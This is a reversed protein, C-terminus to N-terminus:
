AGGGNARALPVTGAGPGGEERWAARSISMPLLTWIQDGVRQRAPPADDLAFGVRRYCDIAPRNFDYVGLDVRHLGLEDFAVRLAARVLAQGLGRGRLEPPGVLVRGLRARGTRRHIRGLEVHGVIRGEPALAARYIRPEGLWTAARLHSRLQPPDLPFEFRPGAWQVLLAPSDIWAALRDLDRETFPQLEIM